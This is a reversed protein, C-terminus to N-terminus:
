FYDQIINILYSKGIRAIEIMIINLPKVSKPNMISNSYHSEIRKFVMM